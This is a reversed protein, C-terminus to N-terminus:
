ANNSQQDELNSQQDEIHELFENLSGALYAIEDDGKVVVRLGQEGHRMREVVVALEQIPRALYYSRFLM